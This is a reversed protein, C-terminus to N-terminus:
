FDVGAGFDETFLNLSSLHMKGGESDGKFSSDFTLVVFERQALENAWVGSGQEKVGGYPAGIILAPYKKDDNMDKPM